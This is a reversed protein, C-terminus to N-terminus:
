RLGGEGWLVPHLKGNLHPLAAAFTNRLRNRWDPFLTVRGDSFDLLQTDIRYLGPLQTATYGAILDTLNRSHNM